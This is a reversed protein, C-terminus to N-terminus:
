EDEFEYRLLLQQIEIKAMRNKRPPLNSLLPAVSKLFLLDHDEKDQCSSGSTQDTNSTNKLADIILYDISDRRDSAKKFKKASRSDSDLKRNQGSSSPTPSIPPTLDDNPQILDDPQTPSLVNLYSLSPPPTPSLPTMNLNSETRRNSVSDKLFLLQQFYKCTSTKTAGAGSRTAMDIKKLCKMMGDRLNKWRRKM